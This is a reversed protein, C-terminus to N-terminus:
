NRKIFRVKLIDHAAKLSVPDVLNVQKGPKSSDGAMQGGNMTPTNLSTAETEPKRVRPRYSSSYKSAPQPAAQTALVMPPHVAPAKTSTTTTTTSTVAMSELTAADLCTTM